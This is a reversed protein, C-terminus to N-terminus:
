ANDSKHSISFPSGNGSDSYFLFRLSLFHAQTEAISSVFQGQLTEMFPDQPKNKQSLCKIRVLSDFFDLKRMRAFGVNLSTGRAEARPMRAFALLPSCPDFRGSCHFLLSYGSLCGHCFDDGRTSQRIAQPLGIAEHSSHYLKRNCGCGFGYQRLHNWITLLASFILFLAVFSAM